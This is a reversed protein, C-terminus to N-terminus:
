GGAASNHFGHDYRMGRCTICCFSISAEEAQGQKCCPAESRAASHSHTQSQRCGLGFEQSLFANKLMPQWWLWSVPMPPGPAGWSNLNSRNSSAPASPNALNYGKLNFSCTLCCSVQQVSAETASKTQPTDRSLKVEGKQARNPYGSCEESQTM